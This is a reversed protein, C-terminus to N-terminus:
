FVFTIYCKGTIKFLDDQFEIVDLYYITKCKGYFHSKVQFFFDGRKGTTDYLLFNSFNQKLMMQSSLFHM